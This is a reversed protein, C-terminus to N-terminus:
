PEVDPTNLADAITRGIGLAQPVLVGAGAGGMALTALGLVSQGVSALIASNQKIKAAVAEKVRKEALAQMAEVRSADGRAVGSNTFGVTFGARGAAWADAQSKAEDAEAQAHKALATAIKVASWPEGEPPAASALIAEIEQTTVQLQM